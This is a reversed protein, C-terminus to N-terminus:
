PRAGLKWVLLALLTLAIYLVYLRLRGQQLWRMRAFLRAVSAFAPRILRREFADPTESAFHAEAPFYGTPKRSRHEPSLVRRFMALLPQAFSSATYQLRPSGRVYGCDWTGAQQVNRRSLLLARLGALAAALGALAAAGATLSALTRRAPGLLDLAQRQPLGTLQAVLPALFGPLLPGLLGVALCAAALLLMPLVMTAPAERAAAAQPSRPEGLFSIGYAKAFCAAALGGILALAVIAAAGAVAPAAGAALVARLAGSGILFESVFGNLPPLASIAAAGLLFSLGTLPMRRALGGLRELDRTGAAQAAAGAGLFLLSKFLAHNLVHLLGGAFGLVAVPRLGYALGLLGLGLGMLIIGINEVSHYALLRKLDHQALAFLVGLIGSLAGVALLTWGWWAPPPGLFLLTRLIGYIGLKIMVGSMLASVHSPAAPHAEPLWVHLPVIGAKTGFGLLALVFAIGAATGSLGGFRAFDLGGRGLLLFLAMLFATGIQSATLYTLGARRAGPQQDEFTVLFWSSITMAEWALLFLVANRALVVMAMSAVLLHYFLWASGLGRAANRLYRGGYLASVAGIGYVPLLFFGSLPDLAVRFSGGIEGLWPLSVSCPLDLALAAVAGALGLLNGATGGWCGIAEVWRPKRGAAAAALGLLCLLAPPALILASL